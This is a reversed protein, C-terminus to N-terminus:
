IALLSLSFHRTGRGETNGNAPVLVAMVGTGLMSIGCSKSFASLRGIVVPQFERLGAGETNRNATVLVAIVGTGLM